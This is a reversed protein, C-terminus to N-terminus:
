HWALFQDPGNTGHDTLRVFKRTEPDVAFLSEDEPTIPTSWRKAMPLGISKESWSIRSLAEASPLADLLTNM